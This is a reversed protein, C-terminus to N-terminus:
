INTRKHTGRKIYFMGYTKPPIGVEPFYRGVYGKRAQNTIQMSQRRQNKLVNQESNSNQKQNQQNIKATRESLRGGVSIESNVATVSFVSVISAMGIALVSLGKKM